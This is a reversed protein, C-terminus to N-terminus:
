NYCQTHSHSTIKLISKYLYLAKYSILVQWQFETYTVGINAGNIWESEEQVEQKPSVISDFASTLTHSQSWQM